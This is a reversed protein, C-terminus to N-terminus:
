LEPHPIEDTATPKSRDLALSADWVEHREGQMALGNGCRVTMKEDISFSWSGDANQSVKSVTESWDLCPYRYGEASLNEGEGVLKGWFYKDIVLPGRPREFRPGLLVSAVETDLTDLLTFVARRLCGAVDVHVQQALTRVSPLDMFGHEFGDSANKAAYYAADNNDFVLRRRVEPRLQRRDKVNWSALLQEESLGQRRLQTRLVAGTINEVGMWLHALALTEMGPRWWSLALSYHNIAALIRNWEPHTAVAAHFPGVTLPDAHRGPVLEGLNPPPVVRRQFFARERIGPTADFTLQIEPHGVYANVAFSMVHATALVAAASGELAETLSSANSSVEAALERPVPQGGLEAAESFYRILKGESNLQLRTGLPIYFSAPMRLVTLYRPM